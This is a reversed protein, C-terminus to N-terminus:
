SRKELVPQLKGNVFSGRPYEEYSWEYVSAEGDYRWAPVVHGNVDRFRFVEILKWSGDSRIYVYRGSDPPKNV